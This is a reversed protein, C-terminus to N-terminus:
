SAPTSAILKELAAMDNLTAAPVETGNLYATPTGPVAGERFATYSNVVWQQFKKTTYCSEFTTYADGTIGVQKGFDLLQADTWGEGETTPQNAFLISHYDHTKGADIACGGAMTARQSSNPNPSTASFKTDIFTTPRWVLNVKGDDALKTLSAGNSKEYAACSPCQFDEWVALTPKGAVTNYPVGWANSGDAGNVGTPVAADTVIGTSPATTSTSGRLALGIILAVAIVIAAGGILRIRNDRRRQEADAAERAAAAKEKTSRKSDKPASSM